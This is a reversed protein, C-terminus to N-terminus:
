GTSKLILAKSGHANLRTRKSSKLQRRGSQALWGAQTPPIKTEANQRLRPRNSFASGKFQMGSLQVDRVVATHRNHHKAFSRLGAPQFFAPAFHVFPLNIATIRSTRIIVSYWYCDNIM